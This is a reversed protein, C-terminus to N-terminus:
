KPNSWTSDNNLDKQVMRETDGYPTAGVHSKAAANRRLEKAEDMTKGGRYTISEWKSSERPNGFTVTPVHADFRQFKSKSGCEDCKVHKYKETKDYPTNEEYVNHCKKCQFVYNPM